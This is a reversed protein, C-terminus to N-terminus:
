IFEALIIINPKFIDKRMMPRTWTPFQSLMATRPARWPRGRCGRYRAAPSPSPDAGTPPAAPPPPGRAAWWAYRGASPRPGAPRRVWQGRPRALPSARGLPWGPLNLDCVQLYLAWILPVKRWFKIYSNEKARGRWVGSTVPMYQEIARLTELKVSGNIQTPRASVRARKRQAKSYTSLSSRRWRAVWTVYKLLHWIYITNWSKLNTHLANPIHTAWQYRVQSHDCFSPNSDRCEALYQVYHLFEPVSYPVRPVLLTKFLLHPPRALLHPPRTTLTRAELDGTGPEFRPGLGGWLTTQPAASWM